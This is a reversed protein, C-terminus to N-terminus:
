LNLYEVPKFLDCKMTKFKETNDYIFEFQGVRLTGSETNRYLGYVIGIQKHFTCTYM